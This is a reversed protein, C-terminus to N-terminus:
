SAHRRVVDSVNEIIEPPAKGEVTLALIRKDSLIFFYASLKEWKISSYLLKGDYQEYAEAMRLILIAQVELRREVDPPTTSEVHLNMGGAIREGFDDIVVAYRVFDLAFLEKILGEFDKSQL